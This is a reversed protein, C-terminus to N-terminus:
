LNPKGRYQTAKKLTEKIKDWHSGKWYIKGCGPNVCVWFRRKRRLVNAPINGEVECRRVPKLPSNCLPCRSSNPNLRLKLKFKRSLKALVEARSKGEVMYVKILRRSAARYLEVDRTLLVRGSAEAEALLKDDPLDAAYEVDYGLMRLWRALSGLMGDALFKPKEAKDQVMTKLM